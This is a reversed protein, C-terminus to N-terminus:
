RIMPVNNSIGVNFEDSEDYAYKEQTKFIYQTFTHSKPTIYRGITNLSLQVILLVQMALDRSIYIYIYELEILFCFRLAGRLTKCQLTIANRIFPSM